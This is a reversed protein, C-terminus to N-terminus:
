KMRIAFHEMVTDTIQQHVEEPKLMGDIVAWIGDHPPNKFLQLYKERVSEMFGARREYEDRRIPRRAVSEEASIDILIWLDAPPLGDHVGRLYDLSIGDAQGYVLGSAFYRDCVLHRTPSHKVSTLLNYKEYRNQTMLAQLLLARDADTEKSGPWTSYSPWWEEKLLSLILKGTPSSYDPFSTLTSSGPWHKNLWDNLLKSQTAKGAADIAEIAFLAM